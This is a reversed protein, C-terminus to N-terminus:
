QILDRHNDRWIVKFITLLSQHYKTGVVRLLFRGRCQPFAGWGGTWFIKDKRRTYLITFILIYSARIKGSIRHSHFMTETGLILVYISPASWWWWWWWWWWRRWLNPWKVAHKPEL